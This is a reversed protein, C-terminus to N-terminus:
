IEGKELEECRDDEAQRKRRRADALDIKDRVVKVNGYRNAEGGGRLVPVREVEVLGFAELVTLGQDSLGRAQRRSLGRLRALHQILQEAPM